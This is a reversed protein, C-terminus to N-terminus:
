EGFLESQDVDKAPLLVRAGHTIPYTLNHMSVRTLADERRIRPLLWRQTWWSAIQRTAASAENLPFTYRPRRDMGLLYPSANSALTVGYVLRPAGHRLLEDSSLGLVDIGDRLKRLRPNAGEGFVSNVRQGRRSNALLRALAEVTKDGFHFTGLGKTRGLYEYRICAAGSNERELPMALRDYQSPRQGYLSTTGIYVLDAPRIMARGAMSSAILSPIGGYRRKYEIVVEPSTMLMAVLKGGLLENYPPVAGCVTVDAIATGVRDAKVKRIVRAIADRGAGDNILHILGEKSPKGNFFRRLVMRVRLLQALEQSRKSQFLLSQAQAVWGAETMEEPRPARKYDRSEMMRYHQKRKDSAQAELAKITKIDPARLTEVTLLENRLLDTIYIDAIAEDVVRLLWSAWEGSPRLRMQALVHKPTWGLHTDRVAMAVAASSLAAIGIVPHFTAAADRVLVMITRGPISKYPNAWTHRFYRWVDVLRLGTWACCDTENFFQLYPQIVSSVEQACAACTPLQTLRGLQAALDRGDRMLSFISIFQDKFLQRKEMTRVFEHVAPQHLQEDREAHLQRRVHQRLETPDEPQEPRLVQIAASTLRVAWGQKALDALVQIAAILPQRSEGKCAAAEQIGRRRIREVLVHRAPADDAETLYAYESAVTLLIRRAVRGDSIRPEFPLWHQSAMAM